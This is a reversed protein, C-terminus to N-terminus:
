VAIDVHFDYILGLNKNDLKEIFSKTYDKSQNMAIIAIFDKSQNEQFLSNLLIVAKNYTKIVISNDLNFSNDKFEFIYIMNKKFELKEPLKQNNGNQIINVLTFNQVNFLFDNELSM